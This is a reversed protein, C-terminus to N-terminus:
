TKLNELAQIDQIDQERNSRKKMKILANISIIPVSRGHISKNVTEMKRSDDTIIIDVLHAPNTSDYFSWAILNRNKIYEERFQFVEKASVPLRSVLGIELLAKETQTFAKENLAICLDLDITGRVAGHLAVAYGGVVTFDVQHKKLSKVVDLLFM